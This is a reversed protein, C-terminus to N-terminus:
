GSSDTETGSSQSSPARLTKHISNSRAPREEVSGKGVEDEFVNDQDAFDNVLSERFRWLIKILSHLNWWDEQKQFQQTPTGPLTQYM